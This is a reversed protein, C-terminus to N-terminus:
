KTLFIRVNFDSNTQQCGMRRSSIKLITDNNGLIVKAHYTVIIRCEDWRLRSRFPAPVISYQFLPEKKFVWYKMM